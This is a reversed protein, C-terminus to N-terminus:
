GCGNSKDIDELYKRLNRKNHLILDKGNHIVNCRPCKYDKNKNLIPESTKLIIVGCSKRPCYWIYEMNMKFKIKSLVDILLLWDKDLIKLLFNTQKLNILIKVIKKKLWM